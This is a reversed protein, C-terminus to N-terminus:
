KKHLLTLHNQTELEILERLLADFQHDTIEPTADLYYLKNHHHIESRLQQIRQADPTLDFLDQMIFTLARMCEHKWGQM